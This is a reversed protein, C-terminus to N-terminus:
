QTIDFTSHKNCFMYNNYINNMLSMLQVSIIIMFDKENLFEMFKQQESHKRM